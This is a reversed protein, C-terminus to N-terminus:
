FPTAQETCALPRINDSFQSSIFYCQQDRIRTGSVCNVRLWLYCKLELFQEACIPLM